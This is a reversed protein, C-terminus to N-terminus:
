RKNGILYVETIPITSEYDSQSFLYNFEIQKKPKSIKKISNYWDPKRQMPNQSSSFIFIGDDKLHKCWHQMNNISFGFATIVDFELQGFQLDEEANGVINHNYDHIDFGTYICNLSELKKKSKSDGCGMDLVRKNKWLTETEELFHEFPSQFNNSEFTEVKVEYHGIDKRIIKLFPNRTLFRSKIGNLEFVM